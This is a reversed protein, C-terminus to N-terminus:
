AATSYNSPFMARKADDDMDQKFDHDTGVKRARAV